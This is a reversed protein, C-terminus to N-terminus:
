RRRCLHHRALHRRRDSGVSNTSSTNTFRLTTTASTAVFSFGVTRSTDNLAVETQTFIVKGAGDLVEVKLTHTAEVAWDETLTFQGM